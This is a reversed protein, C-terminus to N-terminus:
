LALITASGALVALQTQWLWINQEQLKEGQAGDSAIDTHEWRRLLQGRDWCM